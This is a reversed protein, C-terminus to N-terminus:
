HPPIILGIAIFVGAALLLWLLSRGFLISLVVFPTAFAVGFQFFDAADLMSGSLGPSHPIAFVAGGIAAVTMAVFLRKLSVRAGSTM